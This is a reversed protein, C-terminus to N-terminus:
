EAEGRMNTGCNPCYNDRHESAFGCQDCIWLDGHEDEEVWEGTKPQASPLGKIVAIANHEAGFLKLADIAAQRSILDEM